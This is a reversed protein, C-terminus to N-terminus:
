KAGKKARHEVQLLQNKWKTEGTHLDDLEKELEAIEAQLREVEKQENKERRRKMELERTFKLWALIAEGTLYGMTTDNKIAEIHLRKKIHLPLHIVVADSKKGM